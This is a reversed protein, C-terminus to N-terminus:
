RAKEKLGYVLMVNGPMQGFPAYGSPIILQGGNLLVGAVDIAGGHGEVGNSAVYARNTEIVRLLKGNAANFIHVKGDLTPM